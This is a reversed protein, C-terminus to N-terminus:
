ANFKGGRTLILADEASRVVGNLVGDDDFRQLMAAQESRLSGKPSKVEMALFWAFKKGVMDPTIIIVKYGFLDPFGKPLGSSFWNPSPILISGDPNKIYDPSYAWGKGVNARFINLDHYYALVDRIHNQIYHEKVM